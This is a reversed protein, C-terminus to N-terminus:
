SSSSLVFVVALLTGVGAGANFKGKRTKKVQEKYGKEFQMRQTTDFNTVYHHPVETDKGSIVLYGIGWGILGLLFGSGFGGAIAGGGTYDNQAAAKGEYYYDKVQSEQGLAMTTPLMIALIMVVSMIKRIPSNTRYNM